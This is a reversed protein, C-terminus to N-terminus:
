KLKRLSTSSHLWKLKRNTRQSSACFLSLFFNLHTQIHLPSVITLLYTYSVDLKKLRKVFQIGQYDGSRVFAKEAMELELSELSSEALLRRSLSYPTTSVTSTPLLPTGSYVNHIDDVVSYQHYLKNM